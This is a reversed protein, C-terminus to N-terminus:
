RSDWGCQRFTRPCTGRMIVAMITDQDFTASTPFSHGWYHMMFSREQLRRWRKCEKWWPRYLEPAQSCYVPYVSRTMMITLDYCFDPAVYEDSLRTDNLVGLKKRIRAKAKERSFKRSVLWEEAQEIDLCKRHFVRSVLHPGQHAWAGGNFHVVFDKMCELLFEHHASFRLFANNISGDDETAVANGLGVPMANLSIIDMDLYTGGYKWLLALRAADSLVVPIWPTKRYTGSAYWSGLPTGRFIEPFDFSRLLIRPDARESWKTRYYSLNSAYIYVTYNPNKALFSEVSCHIHVCSNVKRYMELFFVQDPINTINASLPSSEPQATHSRSPDLSRTRRRPPPPASTSTSNQAGRQEEDSASQRRIRTFFSPESGQDGFHAASFVRNRTFNIAACDDEDDDVVDIHDHIKETVTNAPTVKKVEEGPSGTSSPPQAEDRDRRRGQSQNRQLLGPGEASLQGTAFAASPSESGTVPPGPAGGAESEEATLRMDMSGSEAALESGADTPLEAGVEAGAEAGSGAEQIAEATVTAQSRFSGNTLKWSDDAGPQETPSAHLRAIGAPRNETLTDSIEDEGGYGGDGGDGRDEHEHLRKGSARLDTELSPLPAELNSTTPLDVGYRYPYPVATGRRGGRWEGGGVGVRLDLRGVLVLVVVCAWAGILASTRSFTLRMNAVGHINSLLPLTM